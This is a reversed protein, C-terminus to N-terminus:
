ENKILEGKIKGDSDDWKMEDKKTVNHKEVLKKPITSRTQTKDQTVKTKM